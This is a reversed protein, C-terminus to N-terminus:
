CRWSMVKWFGNSNSANRVVISVRRVEDHALPPFVSTMAYSICAIPMRSMNVRVPQFFVGGVPEKGPLILM